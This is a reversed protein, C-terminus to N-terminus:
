KDKLLEEITKLDEDRAQENQYYILSCFSQGEMYDISNGSVTGKEFKTGLELTERLTNKLASNNIKRDKM